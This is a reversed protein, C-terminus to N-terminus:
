HAVPAQAYWRCPRHNHNKRRKKQLPFSLLFIPSFLFPFPFPSLFFIQGKPFTKITRHCCYIGFALYVRPKRPEKKTPRVLITSNSSVGFNRLLVSKSLCVRTATVSTTFEYANSEQCSATKENKLISHRKNFPFTLSAFM